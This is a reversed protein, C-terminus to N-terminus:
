LRRRAAALDGRCAPLKGAGSPRWVLPWAM